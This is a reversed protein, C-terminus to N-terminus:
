WPYYLRSEIYFIKGMGVSNKMSGIAPLAKWDKSASREMGEHQSTKGDPLYIGKNSFQHPM